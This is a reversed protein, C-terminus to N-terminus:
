PKGRTLDELALINQRPVPWPRTDRWVAAIEAVYSVEDEGACLGTLPAKFHIGEGTKIPKM